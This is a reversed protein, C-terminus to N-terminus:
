YLEACLSCIAASGVLCPSACVIGVRLVICGFFTPAEKNGAFSPLISGIDSTQSSRNPLLFLLPGTEDTITTPASTPRTRTRLRPQWGGATAPPSRHRPPVLLCLPVAAAILSFSPFFLLSFAFRPYLSSLVRAKSKGAWTM